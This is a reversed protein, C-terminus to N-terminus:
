QFKVNILDNSKNQEVIKMSLSNLFNLLLKCFNNKLLYINQGVFFYITVEGM